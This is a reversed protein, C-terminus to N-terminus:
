YNNKKRVLWKKLKMKKKKILKDLEAEEKEDADNRQKVFKSVKISCKEYIENGKSFSFDVKPIRISEVSSMKFSKNQYSM